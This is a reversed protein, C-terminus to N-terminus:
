TLGHLLQDFGLAIWFAKDSPKWRGGINPHAKLRDIVFHLWHECAALVAAEAFSVFLVLVLFTLLSHVACHAFLWDYWDRRQGKAQVMAQSQLPFDALFHKILLLAILTM